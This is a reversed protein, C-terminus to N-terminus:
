RVEFRASEADAEKGSPMKLHVSLTNTAGHQPALTAQANGSADTVIAVSLVNSAGGGTLSASVGALTFTVTAGSLPAWTGEYVMVGDYLTDTRSKLQYSIDTAADLFDPPATVWGGFYAVQAIKQPPTKKGSLKDTFLALGGVVLAVLIGVVVLLEVLTFGAPHVRGRAISRL